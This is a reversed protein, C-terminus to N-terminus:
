YRSFYTELDDIDVLYYSDDEYSLVLDMYSYYSDEHTVVEDSWNEYQVTYDYNVKLEVEFNGDDNIEIDYISIDTFDISTLTSYADELDSVFETYYDNINTTDLGSHEFNSKIENFQKRAIGNSYLTNLIEKSKTIIKDKVSETLSDVDFSVTYPSSYSSPTVTDEIEIGNALVAKITMSTTFVQPLVYVDLKSTSEKEDLYKDTLKVDAFTIVTDKPAEIEFDKMVASETTFDSIKWNDFILYKKGKQKTLSVSSEHEESSGKMTYTFEVRATLKGEGYEVDNIVYNEVGSVEEGNEKIAENFIKKSVFTKDGKIELYKYLRNGDQKITAEIYDKAIAKPNTLDSGIKYGIGFVIIIAAVVAIMIKKKKSMPQRPKTEKITNNSSNNQEVQQELRAGCEKCFMDGVKNKTGCEGCYM